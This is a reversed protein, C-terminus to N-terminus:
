SESVNGEGSELQAIKEDMQRAYYSEDFRGPPTNDVWSQMLDMLDSPLGEDGRKDLVGAITSPLEGFVDPGNHHQFRRVADFLLESPASSEALGELLARVYFADVNLPVKELFLKAFREPQEKVCGQLVRCLQEAGGKLFERRHKIDGQYHAMARLWAQDSMKQAKSGEIPSGVFGSEGTIPKDPLKEGRFKDDWERLRRQGELTLRERGLALLLGWQEVGRRQLIYLDRQRLRLCHPLRDHALIHREMEACQPSSWFPAVERMLRRTECQSEGLELRRVDGCLFSLVRDSFTQPHEAYVDLVLMHPTEYHLAELRNLWEQCRSADTDALLQLAKGMARSLAFGFHHGHLVGRTSRISWTDRFADTPFYLDNEEPLASVHLARELFSWISGLFENPKAEALTELVEDDIKLGGSEKDAFANWFPSTWRFHNDPKDPLEAQALMQELILCGELPHQKAVDRLHYVFLSDNNKWNNLLLKEYLRVAELSHWQRIRGVWATLLNDWQDSRGLYPTLFATIQPQASTSDAVSFLFWFLANININDLRGSEIERLWRPIHEEALRSFWGENGGAVTLFKVRLESNRLMRRVRNWEIENPRPLTGFWQCLMHRLHKRLNPHEFLEDIGLAILEREYEQPNTSRLFGLVHQLLPRETLGQPSSFIKQSLSQGSAVFFRAYAYDYFTQHLFNWNSGTNERQLIGQSELFLVASQLHKSYADDFIFFPASTREDKEMRLVIRQIVETRDQSSVPAEPSLVSREWILHYLDQLTRVNRLQTNVAGKEQQREIVRAFLDLHLPVQLLKQAPPALDEYRVGVKDLVKSIEDKSLDSIEFKQQIDLDRLTPTTNLDFTRCSLLVRVDHLGQLREIVRAIVELAYPERTMSLSLADVQDLLVVIPKTQSRAVWRVVDEVPAPLAVGTCEHLHRGPSLDTLQRDAKIALTVINQEELKALVDRLVVTKGRGPGDLLVAINKQPDGTTLMWEVIEEAVPREIHSEAISGFASHQARLTASCSYIADLLQTLPPPAYLRIRHDSELRESLSMFTHEVRDRADNSIYKCLNSHLTHPLILGNDNQSSPLSLIAQRDLFDRLRVQVRVCQLFAWKDLRISALPQGEAFLKEIKDQWLEWLKANKKLRSLWEGLNLRGKISEFMTELLVYDEDCSGVCLILRSNVHDFDPKEYQQLFQRWIKRWIEGSASLNEKAQVYDRHGDEYTVVVDDVNIPAEVRVGTIKSTAPLDQGSLMEAIRLAAYLNQYSIGSQTTTGGQEPMKFEGEVAHL